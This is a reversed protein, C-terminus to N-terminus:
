RQKMLMYVEKVDDFEGQMVIDDLYAIVRLNPLAQQVARLQPQITLAFLRPGIPDGQNVGSSSRIILAEPPANPVVLDSPQGYMWWVLPTLKPVTQQVAELMHQRSVTNFANKCDLQLTIEHPHKDLGTQVAHGMCQPGAPTGVGVQLPGLNAGVDVCQLM